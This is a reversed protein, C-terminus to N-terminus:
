VTRLFPSKYNANYSSGDKIVAWAIRAMKNALAVATKNYGRRELLSKIWRSRNDSRSGPRRTAWSLVARAGHILSTRIYTDGGKSIGLIREKSGSSYQRPTLGLFAAFHRGNKFGAGNGLVSALITATMAGIGPIMELRQCDENSKSLGRIKAEYYGIQKNLYCFREYLEALCNFILEGMSNPNLGLIKSLEKTLCSIGLPISFGYEALLGRIQNALATRQEVLLSRIRHICQM